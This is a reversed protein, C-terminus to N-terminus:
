EKALLIVRPEEQPLDKKKVIVKTEPEATTGMEKIFADATTAKPDNDSKFAMPIVIRPEVISIIKMATEISLASKAGVPVFLIDSGSIVDLASNSPMSSILGLHALSIDEADIRVITENKDRGQSASMLVGSTECEGPASLIFPKGSLTVSDSEGRTFLVIDPTLSRPSNGVTAKYPDILITVDKDVNKTQLRIFTSGLWSIHM